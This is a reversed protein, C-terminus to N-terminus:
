RVRVRATVSMGPKLGQLNAQAEFAIKVPVRRVIKTFNGTANEPPLISFEAGSAPAASSVVGHYSLTPFADVEIEVPDGVHMDELQTEKFNAEVFLDNAPVLYAILGNPQIWQGLQVQRQAVVGDVPALIRTKELEIEAIRLTAEAIGIAAESERLRATITDAQRRTEALAAGAQTHGARALAATAKANDRVQVSAAGDRALDAQRAFDARSRAAEIKARQVAAEQQAVRTEQVLAESALTERQARAALLAARAHGLRARFDRDDIEVLLDGTRVPQHDNFHIGRVFGSVQPSIQAMHTRLYANDTTEYPHLEHLWYQTGLYAAGFLAGLLALGLGAQRM